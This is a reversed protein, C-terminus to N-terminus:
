CCHRSHIMSACANLYNMSPYSVEAGDTHAEPRTRMLQQVAGLLLGTMIAVESMERNVKALETQKELSLQHKTFQLGNTNTKQTNNNTRDQLPLQLQIRQNAFGTYRQRLLDALESLWALIPSFDLQKVKCVIGLYLIARLCDQRARTDAEAFDLLAKLRPFRRESTTPDIATLLVLLSFHNILVSRHKRPTGDSVRRYPLRERMPMVRMSMRGLLDNARKTKEAEAEAAAQALIRLFLRFATDDEEVETKIQGTYDSLFSPFEPEGDISLDQLERSNLIDFLKGILKSQELLAWQWRVALTLCRAFLTWIYRSARARSTNGMTVYAKAFDQPRINEILPLMLTWHGALRAISSSLGHVSFQSLTSLGMAAYSAVEGALIPHLNRNKADKQLNSDVLQWLTKHSLLSYKQSDHGVSCVHIICVWIESQLDEIHASSDPSASVTNKLNKVMRGFGLLVLSETIEGLRELLHSGSEEQTILEAKIKQSVVYSRYAIEFMYWKFPLLASTRKTGEKSGSTVWEDLRAELQALKDLMSTALHGSNAASTIHEHLYQATFRLTDGVPGTLSPRYETSILEEYMSNCLRPLIVLFDNGGIDHDLQIGFPACPWKRNAEEISCDALRIIDRLLGKGIYSHPSFTLGPPLKLIDFDFSFRSFSTGAGAWINGQIANIAQASGAIDKKATNSENKELTSCSRRFPNHRQRIAQPAFSAPPIASFLADTDNLHIPPTYYKYQDMRKQTNRQMKVAGRQLDPAGQQISSISEATRGKIGKKKVKRTRMSGQRGAQRDLKDRMLINGIVGDWYRKGTESTSPRSVKTTVTSAWAATAEEERENESDEEFLNSPNDSESTPDEVVFKVPKDANDKNIRIKARTRNEQQETESDIADSEHLVERVHKGTKREQRMAELDKMARKVFVAPMSAFAARKRSGKLNFKDDAYFPRDPSDGCESADTSESEELAEEHRQSADNQENAYLSSSISPRKNSRKRFPSESIDIVNRSGKKDLDRRLSGKQACTSHDAAASAARLRKKQHKPPSSSAPESEARITRRKLRSSHSEDQTHSGTALTKKRQPMDKLSALAEDLTVHSTSAKSYVNNDPPAHKRKRTVHHGSEYRIQQKIPRAFAFDPLDSDSSEDSARELAHLIM